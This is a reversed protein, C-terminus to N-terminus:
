FKNTTKKVSKSLKQGSKSEKSKNQSGKEKSNSVCYSELIPLSKKALTSKREHERKQKYQEELM